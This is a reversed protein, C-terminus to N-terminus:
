PPANGAISEQPCLFRGMASDYSAPLRGERSHIKTPMSAHPYLSSDGVPPTGKCVFIELENGTLESTLKVRAIAPYQQLRALRAKEHQSQYFHKNEDIKADRRVEEMGNLCSEASAKLQEETWGSEADLM